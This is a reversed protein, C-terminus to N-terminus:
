ACDPHFHSTIWKCMYKPLSFNDAVNGSGGPFMLLTGFFNFNELFAFFLKQQKKGHFTLKWDKKLINLYNAFTVHKKGAHRQQIADVEGGRVDEEGEGQVVVEAQGEHLYEWLGHPM